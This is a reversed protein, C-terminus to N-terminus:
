AHLGDAAAKALSEFSTTDTPAPQVIMMLVVNAKFIFIVTGTQGNSSATYEIAKDGTGPLAKSNSITYAGNFSAALQQPQVADATSSDPLVEGFIVMTTGNSGSYTCIGSGGSSQFTGGFATAAAAASVLACADVAAIHVAPTPTPSPSPSPTPSSTSSTGGSEGCGAALVAVATSVLFLRVVGAFKM